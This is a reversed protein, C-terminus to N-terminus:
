KTKEELQSKKFKRKVEELQKRSISEVKWMGAENPLHSENTPTLREDAYTVYIDGTRCKIVYHKDRM